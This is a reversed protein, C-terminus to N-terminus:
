QFLNLVPSSPRKTVDEVARLFESFVHRTAQTESNERGTPPPQTSGLVVSEDERAQSRVFADTRDANGTSLGARPRSKRKESDPRTQVHHRDLIQLISSVLVPCEAEVEQMPYISALSTVPTVCSRFLVAKKRLRCLSLPM